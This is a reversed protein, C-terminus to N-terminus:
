IAPPQETECAAGGRKRYEITRLRLVLKGRPRDLDHRVGADAAPGVNRRAHHHHVRRAHELGLEHDHVPDAAAAGRGQLVRHVLRAVPVHDHQDGLGV